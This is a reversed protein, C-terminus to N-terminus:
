INQLATQIKQSKSHTNTSSWPDRQSRCAAAIVSEHSPVRILAVSSSSSTHISPHLLVLQGKKAGKWNGRSSNRSKKKLGKKAVRKSARKQIKPERRPGWSVGFHPWFCWFDTESPEKKQIDTKINCNSTKQIIKSSKKLDRFGERMPLASSIHVKAFIMKKVKSPWKPNMNWRMKSSRAVGFRHLDAKPPQKFDKQNKM